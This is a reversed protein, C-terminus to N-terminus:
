LEVRRDGIWVQDHRKIGVALVQVVREPTDQAQYYVRFGGVRLEWPALPNPRMPKRNKTEVTPQYSLQQRIRDFILARQRATLLRLHGESKQAYEIRYAM